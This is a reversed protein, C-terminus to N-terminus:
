VVLSGGLVVSDVETAGPGIVFGNTGRVFGTDGPDGADTHSLGTGPVFTGDSDKISLTAPASGHFVKYISASPLGTIGEIKVDNGTSLFSTVSSNGAFTANSSTGLNSTSAIEFGSATSLYGKVKATYSSTTKTTVRGELEITESGIVNSVSDVIIEGTGGYTSTGDVSTNIAGNIDVYFTIDGRSSGYNSNVGNLDGDTFTITDLDKFGTGQRSSNVTASVVKGSTKVTFSCQVSDGGTIDGSGSTSSPTVNSFVIDSAASDLQVEAAALSESSSGFVMAPSLGNYTAQTSTGINIAPGSLAFFLYGQVDLFIVRIKTATLSIVSYITGCFVQSGSNVQKFTAGPNLNYNSKLENATLSGGEVDIYQNQLSLGPDAVIRGTATIYANPLTKTNEPFTGEVTLEFTAPNIHTVTGTDATLATYSSSDIYDSIDTVHAKQGSWSFTEAFTPEVLRFKTTYDDSVVGAAALVISYSNSGMVIRVFSGGTSKTYGVGTTDISAISLTGNSVSATATGMIIGGSPIIPEINVTASAHNTGSYASGGTLITMRSNGVPDSGTVLGGSGLVVKGTTGNLASMPYQTAIGAIEVMQLDTLGHASTTEFVAIGSSTISDLNVPTGRHGLSGKIIANATATSTAGSNNPITLQALEGQTASDDVIHTPLTRVTDLENVSDGESTDLSKFTADYKISFLDNAKSVEALITDNVIEVKLTQAFLYADTYTRSLPNVLNLTHDDVVLEIECYESTAVETGISSSTTIKILDGSNFDTTFSTNTGKITPSSAVGSGRINSSTTITGGSTYETYDHGLLIGTNDSNYLVIQNPISSHHVRATLTQGNLEVMGGVSSFTISDGDALYNAASTTVIIKSRPQTVEINSISFTRGSSLTSLGNNSAGLEKLYSFSTTNETQGDTTTADVHIQAAKWPDVEGHKYLWFASNGNSLASFSQEKQATTASTVEYEFNSVNKFLYNSKLIKLLGSTVNFDLASSIDGGKPVRGVKGVGVPPSVKKVFVLPESYRIPNGHGFARIKFTYTGEDVNLLKIETNEIGTLTITDTGGPTLKQYVNHEVSYGAIDRAQIDFSNGNSDTVSTSPVNWQVILDYGGLSSGGGEETILDPAMAASANVPVSLVSSALEDDFFPDSLTSNKTDIEGFKSREFLVGKFEVNMNDSSHTISIIRYDEVLSNELETNEAIAWVHEKLQDTSSPEHGRYPETSLYERESTVFYNIPSSLLVTSSQGPNIIEKKIISTRDTKQVVVTNNSDDVVEMDSLNSSFLPEGYASKEIIQGRQYRIGDIIATDQQLHFVSDSVQVCFLYSKAPDLDAIRDLQVTNDGDYSEVRGSSSIKLGRQQDQITVVDGIKLAASNLSSKFSVVKGERNNSLMHWEAARKAQGKSTCGYAVSKTSSVRGVQLQSDLDDLILVDQRYQQEPDNWTLEVSNTSAAIGTREYTFLGDLVNAQTFLYLAEKPRDQVPSIQSNQWVTMGRFVSALDKLVKYAETSKTIYTNCTFRPELGGKGDPVLEDCYRSIAYLEYIDIDQPKIYDGLGYEVNTLIDYFIWAPNNTYTKADRFMGDWVVYDNPRIIDNKFNIKVTYNQGSVLEATASDGNFVKSLSVEAKTASSFIGYPIYTTTLGNSDTIDVSDVEDALNYNRSGYITYEPNLNLFVRLLNANSRTEQVLRTVLGDPNPQMDVSNVEGESFGLGGTVNVATMTNTVTNRLVTKEEVTTERNNTDIDALGLKLRSYRAVGTKTGSLLADEERTVYNSPVKIKLGRCHYSRAPMSDFDAGSFTVAAYATLPYTFKDYFLAQVYQVSATLSAQKIIDPDARYINSTYDEYNDPTTRDIEIEFDTFPQFRTLDLEVERSFTGKRNENILLGIGGEDFLGSYGSNNSADWWDRQQVVGKVVEEQFDETISNRHRFKIVADFPAKSYNGDKNVRYLGSPFLINLRIADVQAAQLASLGLSANSTGSSTYITPAATGRAYNNGWLLQTNPNIIVNTRPPNVGSEDNGIATQGREGNRFESTGRFKAASVGESFTTFVHARATQKSLAPPAPAWSSAANSVEIELDHFGAQSSPTIDVIKALLDFRLWSSDNDGAPYGSPDTGGNGIKGARGYAKPLADADGFKYEGLTFPDWLQASNDRGLNLDDTDKHLKSVSSLYHTRTYSNTGARWTDYNVHATFTQKVKSTAGQVAFSGTRAFYELDITEKLFLKRYDTGLDVSDAARDFGNATWPYVQVAKGTSESTDQRMWGEGEDASGRNQGDVVALGGYVSLEVKRGVGEVWLWRPYTSITSVDINEVSASPVRVINSNSTVSAVTNITTSDVVDSKAGASQIATDNFFISEKGNVLGEIPGASIADLVRGSQNSVRSM